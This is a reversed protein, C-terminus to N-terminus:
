ERGMVIVVSAIMLMVGAAVIALPWAILWLGVVVLAAGLGALVDAGDVTM